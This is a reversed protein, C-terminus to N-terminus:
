LIDSGTDPNDEGVAESVALTHEDKIELDIAGPERDM